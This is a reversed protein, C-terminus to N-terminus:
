KLVRYLYVSYTEQPTARKKIGGQGRPRGPKAKNDNARNSEKASVRDTSKTFVM